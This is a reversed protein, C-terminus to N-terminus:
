NQKIGEIICRCLFGSNDFVIQHGAKPVTTIRINKFKDKVIREAGDRPMWDEDGFYFDIPM